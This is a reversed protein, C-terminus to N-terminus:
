TKQLGTIKLIIEELKVPALGEDYKLDCAEILRDCSLFIVRDGESPLCVVDLVLHFTSRDLRTAMLPPIGVRCYQYISDYWFLKEEVLEDSSAFPVFSAILAAIIFRKM